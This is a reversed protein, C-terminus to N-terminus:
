HHDHAMSIYVVTLVSIIFAQLTIILIHFIAWLAGMAVQGFFSFGAGVVSGSHAMTGAGIGLLAILMFVLEGAYMNGFLRMALSVPKALLEVMNLLFNPIWLLPNSGFPAAFLEHLYGGAGKAKLSYFIVFLLVTISMAFTTNIDATPVVRWHYEELGLVHHAIVGPLDLPLLDMANMFFVWMFITLALPALFSRDGHFIERVQNDVGEVAMEVFAQFKGPVGATAKGAALRFLILFLLGLGASMILTDVNLVNFNVIGEAGTVFKGQALDYRLHELHHPIYEASSGAM